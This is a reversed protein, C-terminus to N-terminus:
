KKKTDKCGCIHLTLHVLPQLPVGPFLTAPLVPECTRMRNEGSFSNLVRQNEAPKKNKMRQPEALPEAENKHINLVSIKKDGSNPTKLLM